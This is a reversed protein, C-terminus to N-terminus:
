PSVLWLLDTPCGTPIRAGAPPESVEGGGLSILDGSRYPDGAYLLADHELRVSGSPFVPLYIQGDVEVTICDPDMALTGALLADMGSGEDHYVAANVPPTDRLAVVIVVVIAVLVAALILTLQLVRRGLGQAWAYPDPTRAM